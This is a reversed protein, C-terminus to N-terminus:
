RTAQDQCDARERAHHKCIGTPASTSKDGGFAQEGCNCYAAMLLLARRRANHGMKLTTSSAFTSCAIALQRAPGTKAEILRPSTPWVRSLVLSPRFERKRESPLADGCSKHSPNGM